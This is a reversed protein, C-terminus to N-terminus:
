QTNKYAVYQAYEDDNLYITNTFYRMSNMIILSDVPSAFTFGQKWSQDYIYKAIGHVKVAAEWNKYLDIVQQETMTIPGAPWELIPAITDTLVVSIVLTNSENGSIDKAKLTVNVTPNTATLLTGPSPNQIFTIGGACNDKVIAVKSFDPILGQCDQDAYVIQPPIQGIILTCNCGAFLVIFMLLIIKKM